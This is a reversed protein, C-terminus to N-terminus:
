RTPEYTKHSEIMALYAQLKKDHVKKFTLSFTIKKLLMYAKNIYSISHVAHSAADVKGAGNSAKPKRLISIALLLRQKLYQYSTIKALPSTLHKEFVAVAAAYMTISDSTLGNGRSRCLTLYEDQHLFRVGAHALMLWYDFEEASRLQEDFGGHIDFVRRRFFVTSTYVFNGHQLLKKYMGHGSVTALDHRYITNTGDIFYFVKSYCFDASSHDELFQLQSAIKTPMIIDDGDVICFYDGRASRFGANRAASVGQNAQDVVM